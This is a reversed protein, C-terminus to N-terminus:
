IDAYSVKKSSSLNRYQTIICLEESSLKNLAIKNYPLKMDTLALLYDTSTNLFKAIKMLNECAPVAKGREYTSITEQAVGIEISLRIQSILKEKRLKRLNEM